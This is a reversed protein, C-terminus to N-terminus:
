PTAAYSFDIPTLGRIYQLVFLDANAIGTRPVYIIDFRRLPVQDTQGAQFIASHLNAHRMM